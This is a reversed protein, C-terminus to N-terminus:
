ECIEPFICFIELSLELEFIHSKNLQKQKFLKECLFYYFLDNNIPPIIYFLLQAKEEKWFIVIIM